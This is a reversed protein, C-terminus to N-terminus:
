MWNGGSRPRVDLWCHVMDPLLLYSVPLDPLDSLWDHPKVPQLWLCSGAADHEAVEFESFDAFRGLLPFVAKFAAEKASFLLTAREAADGAQIFRRDRATCCVALIAQLQEVSARKESDIGLGFRGAGAVALALDQHHTIAGTLGAPWLPVGAANRGVRAALCAQTSASREACLRGALFSLQRSRVARAPMAEHLAALDVRDLSASLRAMDVVVITAHDLQYPPPQWISALDAAPLLGGLVAMTQGYSVAAEASHSTLSVVSQM